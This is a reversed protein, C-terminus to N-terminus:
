LFDWVNVAFDRMVCFHQYPHDPRLTTVTHGVSEALKYGDGTSGTKPYSLGGTAIIVSDAYYENGFDTIVGKVCNDETILTTVREQKRKVGMDTIYSNLADVIDM